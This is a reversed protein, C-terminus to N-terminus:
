YGAWFKVIISRNSLSSVWENFLSMEMVKRSIFEYCMKKKKEFEDWVFINLKGGWDM